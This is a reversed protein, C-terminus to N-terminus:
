ESGRDGSAAPDPKPDPGMLGPMSDRGLMAERERGLRAGERGLMAGERGLMAGERSPPRGLMAGLRSDALGLRVLRAGLKAGLMAAEVLRRLTLGMAAARPLTAKGPARDLTDEEIDKTGGPRGLM